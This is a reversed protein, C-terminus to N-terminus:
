YNNYYICYKYLLRNTKNLLVGHIGSTNRNMGSESQEDQVIPM